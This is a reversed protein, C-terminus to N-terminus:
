NDEKAEKLLRYVTTQGIDLHEAVKKTDNSYKDMYILVIRRNYERLTLNEGILDPSEDNLELLIDSALVENKPSMVVALEIVSKLERINGPWGYSMLKKKADESFKKLAIDNESCFKKAFYSTLLLVDSKRERLPPLHIPIGKIRYFLDERFRKAKVEKQLNLNTATILRCNFKIPKSGGVRQIEREQLARLIKSQIHTDMEGIEDLFLTGNNAEEFKGIRRTAAGTFAGKEHGFLESEVLETPIAAMNVAVFPGDKFKSNFHITKASVEKGTGTEGTICVNINTDLSKEMLSFVNKLKPSDGIMSSFNYKNRVESKLKRIESKLGKNNRIHNVSNLIKNRIDKEKVLYDFAGQRLLDVATEIDKQESVVLVEIEPNHNKIKDLLEDGTMDPLRYDISIVDPNQGIRKLMENGSTFSEVKFDPNSELCHVLLRNYWDNDEVIFIHFPKDM